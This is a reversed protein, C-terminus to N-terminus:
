FEKIYSHNNSDKLELRDIEALGNFIFKIAKFNGTFSGRDITYIEVENKFITIENETGVIELDMWQNEDFEFESLDETKGDAQFTITSVRAMGACGKSPMKLYFLGDKSALFTTLALCDKSDMYGKVKLRLGLTFETQDIESLRDNSYILVAQISDPQYKKLAESPNLSWYNSKAIESEEFFAPKDNNERTYWGAQWDENVIHIPSYIKAENNILIRAWHYGPTYYISSIFNKNRDLILHEKENWSLQLIADVDEPISALDYKFGVTVPVGSYKKSNPEFYIDSVEIDQKGQKLNMLLLMSVLLGALSLLIIPMAFVSHKINTGNKQPTNEDTEPESAVREKYDYWTEYGNFVALAHLTNVQPVSKYRNNWIRRLTSESIKIKSKEFIKESLNEFDRHILKESSWIQYKGNIEEVCQRIMARETFM